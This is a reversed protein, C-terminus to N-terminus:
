DGLAVPAHGVGPDAIAAAPWDIVPREPRAPDVWAPLLAGIGPLHAAYFPAGPGIALQARYTAEGEPTVSLDLVVARLLGRMATTSSAGEVRVRAPRSRARVDDLMLARDDIGPPPPADLYSVEGVRGRCTTAWDIVAREGDHRVAVPMGIRVVDVPDLEQRVGATFAAPAAAVEVAYEDIRTVTDDLHHESRVRIGVVRGQGPEGDKLLRRAGSGKRGFWGM